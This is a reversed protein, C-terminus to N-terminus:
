WHHWHHWRHWRHWHHYRWHPHAWYHGPVWHCGWRGCVYRVHEVGGQAVTTHAVAPDLGTVPMASAAGAASGLGTLAIGGVLAMRIMSKMLEELSNSGGLGM